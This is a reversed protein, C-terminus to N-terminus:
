KLIKDLAKMKLSQETGTADDEVPAPAKPAPGGQNDTLKIARTSPNTDLCEHDSYVMKGRITCQRIGSNVTAVPASGTLAPAVGGMSAVEQAIVKASHGWKGWISKLPLEGYRASYLFALGTCTLLMMLVATALLSIAGRQYILWPNRM